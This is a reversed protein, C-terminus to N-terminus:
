RNSRFANPKRLRRDFVYHHCRYCLPILNDIRSNKRQGDKHHIQTWRNIKCYGCMPGYM